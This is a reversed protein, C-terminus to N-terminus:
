VQYNLFNVLFNRKKFMVILLIEGYFLHIPSLNKFLFVNVFNLIHKKKLYFNLNFFNFTM